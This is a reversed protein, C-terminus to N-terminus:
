VSTRQPRTTIRWHRVCYPKDGHMVQASRACTLWSCTM